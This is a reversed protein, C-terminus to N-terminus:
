IGNPFQKPFLYYALQIFIETPVTKVLDNNNGEIVFTAHASPLYFMASGYGLIAGNHGLFGNVNFIGLGYDLAIKGPISSIHVTRLRLRQTGRSLLTGTALAEAWLKLDGLTSVLAGAGGAANPNNRTVDRLSGNQPLYGHAFPSPMAATTPYSTHRMGLPTLVMTKILKRLPVGTVKQAILGLLMYNSDSYEVGRGPAFSPTHRRVIAIVDKPGFPRAPNAQYRKLFGADNTWDYIGSTMNLMEKVTIRNGYPICKVFRSLRDSLKLRHRDVLELIVTATFTKTISAIRIHDDRAFRANTKVNATGFTHLYTGRGPIWVGVAMGPIGNAAMSQSVISTLTAATAPAFRPANERAQVADVTLALSTLVLALMLASTRGARVTLM